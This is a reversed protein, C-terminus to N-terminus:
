QRDEALARGKARAREESRKGETVTGEEARNGDGACDVIVEGEM